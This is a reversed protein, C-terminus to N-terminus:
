RSKYLCVLRFLRRTTRTLLRVTTILCRKMRRLRFDDEGVYYTFADDNNNERTM